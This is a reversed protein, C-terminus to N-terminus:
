TRARVLPSQPIPTRPPMNIPSMCDEVKGRSLSLKLSSQQRQKRAPVKVEKNQDRNQHM